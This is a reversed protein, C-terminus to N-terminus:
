PLFAQLSRFDIQANDVCDSKELLMLERQGRKRMPSEFFPVLTSVFRIFNPLTSQTPIHRIEIRAGERSEPEREKRKAVTAETGNVMM